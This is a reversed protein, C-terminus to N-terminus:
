KTPKEVTIREMKNYKFFDGKKDLTWQTPIFFMQEKSFIKMIEDFTYVEEILFDQEKNLTPDIYDGNPLQVICHAIAGGMISGVAFKCDDNDFCYYYANRHCQHPTNYGKFKKRVKKIKVLEM